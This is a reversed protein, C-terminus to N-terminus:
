NEEVIQPMQKLQQEIEFKTLKALHHSDGVKQLSEEQESRIKIVEELRAEIARVKEKM